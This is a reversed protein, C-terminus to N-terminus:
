AERLHAVILDGSADGDFPPRGTLMHFTVCGLSYIDSRHDVFGAGRCQEPSMYVPTGMVADTHTRAHENPSTLKAIGFDLIKPREGAQAEPDSVLFVNEPKLDRHVIEADHAAALATATQRIIRLTDVPAIRGLRTIRACLTEGELLEMVIYATGDVHVGYDYVQVIGPDRVATAARAENFFREVVDRQASFAPLLQKIAARRGLLVHEALFVAGMGGSGIRRLVRYQGIQTGELMAQEILCPPLLQETVPQANARATPWPNM